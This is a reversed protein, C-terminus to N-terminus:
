DQGKTMSGCSVLVRYSEAGGGADGVTSLGYAAQTTSARRKKTSSPGVAPAELVPSGCGERASATKQGADPSRARGGSTGAASSKWTAYPTSPAFPEGGPRPTDGAEISTVAAFRSWHTPFTAVSISVRRGIVPVSGFRTSAKRSAEIGLPGVAGIAVTAASRDTITESTTLDASGSKLYSPGPPRPM